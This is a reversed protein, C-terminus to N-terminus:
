WGLQVEARSYLFRGNYGFPSAAAWPFTGFNNNYDKSRDGTSSDVVRNSSPQDPYVDFLNRAGIALKVQNFSYGLELDILTKSGYRERCLDCFGPQASSFKGYYSARGLARFRGNEYQTTLTGRWDPREETIAIYGVTDMLGPELSNQLVTPLDDIHTITNKTYNVGADFTLSGSAGAPVRLSAALDVGQTKTDLGNTFYQVGGGGSFGGGGLIALTPAAAFTAGLLIRDNIKIHYFDLTLTLNDRPTVALGASLNFSTEEKLDKAGLLRSAPHDVPYNGVEVLSGAIYSTTIHSFYIQSLGPARFGTSAAGRFVLRQSPQFRLALKGSINSGFDSYNEYRGAVNALVQESLNTELDTYFGFNTRSHDSADSPAFGGFVSSGGPAPGSSDQAQHNGNVWSAREGATIEYQERRVTAGIAVNVPNPLGVTVERAVNVAGLVESRELRGAFFSTQNPIGPDDSTGLTGDAGPACATVLCPGLSANLTNRLNYDFRNRGYTGGFDIAWGGASTRLGGAVSYDAVKPRFEPLFGNPYIEPWNRNGDFYRWYGNGTGVRHAYGGFAYLETSGGSGVPMRFNAFTMADKELGDGWHLNPQPLGNRKEIVQGDSGISDANGAADVLYPDAWARNTPDRQLFEGFLALSGRGLGIGIGGNVDITTGDNSYGRGTVFQGANASLFPAFRGEKLVLNVVGAIADSGYQAAAGDRLVEIREVAGGPIANLDVGSSGAGMGYAFTNLVATQHRRWGNVLVLTHDPSLGRLTFPRVIDNADTVSQRPFNVSPALAQLIQSTETTGQEAIDEATFVDVPVALEEAATHRGRSGIVVDIPALEVATRDLSFNQQAVDAGVVTVLAETPTYGIARVRITRPGAPVGRLTYRGSAATTARLTTGEASVLAGAIAAGASDTVTGQVTGSQAAAAGPSTALLLLAGACLGLFRVVPRPM